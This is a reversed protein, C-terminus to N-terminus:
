ADDDIDVGIDGVRKDLAYPPGLELAALELEADADPDLKPRIFEGISFM